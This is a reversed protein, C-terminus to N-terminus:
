KGLNMLQDSPTPEQWFFMIVFEYRPKSPKAGPAPTPGAPPASPIRPGMASAGGRGPVKGFGHRGGGRAAPGAGGGSSESSSGGLPAWADRGIATGGAAMGGAPQAGPTPAPPLGPGPTAVAAPAVVERLYSQNIGHFDGPKPDEDRWYNFLFAYRVRGNIIANTMAQEDDTRRPTV